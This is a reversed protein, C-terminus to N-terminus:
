ARILLTSILRKDGSGNIRTIHVNQEAGNLILHEEDEKRTRGSSYGIKGM